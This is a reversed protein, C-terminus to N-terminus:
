RGLFAAVREEVRAACYGEDWERYKESFSRANREYDPTDDLKEILRLYFPEGTSRDPVIGLSQSALRNATFLQEVQRPLLIPVRGLRLIKSTTGHNGESFVIRCEACVQELDVHRDIVSVGHKQLAARRAEGIGHAAVLLSYGEGQLQKVFDSDPLRGKTFYCFVKTDGNEWIPEAQKRTPGLTGLYDIDSRLGYGDCEPFSVVLRTAYAYLDALRELPKDGFIHLAANISDLVSDEILSLDGGDVEIGLAYTPFPSEVPPHFFANGVVMVPIRLSYAALLAGDAHDCFVAAPGVRQLFRRWDALTATVSDPDGFGLNFLLDAHSRAIRASGPTTKTPLPLIAVDEGNFFRTTYPVDKVSLLVKGHMQRLVNVISLLRFLHGSGGGREWVCLYQREKM